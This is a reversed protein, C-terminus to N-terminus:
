CFIKLCSSLELYQDTSKRVLANYALFFMSLFRRQCVKIREWLRNPTHAREVTKMYLYCVGTRAFAIFCLLKAAHKIHAIGWGVKTKRSPQMDATQLRVHVDRACVASMISTAVSSLTKLLGQLILFLPICSMCDQNHIHM